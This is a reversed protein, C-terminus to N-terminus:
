ADRLAHAAEVAKAMVEAEDLTTVRRDEMLVRGHCVTHMVDGGRASYVLHSVPNYMPTLHPQNTNIVIVDGLAGPKLVGLEGNGFAKGGRVTALELVSRATAATPELTSVKHLKACSDMEGLIDLDNNSACGDTGLGVAVGAELMQDLKMVGSALKMNSEPCHSVRAGSEALREIEDQTLDVAHDVWLRENLLGLDEVHALPRKGYMQEVQATEAPNEAVHINIDAGLDRSIRGAEELLSPACTYLAHPMVAARVRPHERWTNILEETLRLGNALEGYSSSPFDYIVEGVVARLGAEDAARATQPAFLYMDCFSTVGNKIMELCALRAGQYVAEATLNKELPFIHETLWIQLDLDDAVGRLLTMAAHTHSNILGPMILGGQADLHRVGDLSPASDDKRPGCYTIHGDEILVLGDPILGDSGDMTILTGGTIALKEM